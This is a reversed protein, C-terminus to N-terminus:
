LAAAEQATAELSDALSSLAARLEQSLIAHVQRERTEPASEAACAAAIKAAVRDAINLVADRIIRCENFRAVQVEDRRILKGSREEFEMKALRALFTERVGRAVLYNGGGALAPDTAVSGSLRRSPTASTRHRAGAVARPATNQEWDADAQAPDIKGDPTTTIRGSKIAKQIATLSVGRHKAYARLSLPVTAPSGTQEIM